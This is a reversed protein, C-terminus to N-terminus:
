STERHYKLYDERAPSFIELAVSDEIIEASHEVDPMICWSDDAKMDHIEGGITLRIRGKILYGTQEYPHKHGPLVSDKALRFETMLTNKGYVLTKIRIGPLIESYNDDSHIGIL